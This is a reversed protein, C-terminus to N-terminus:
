ESDRCLLMTCHGYASQPVKGSALDNKRVHRLRLWLLRICSFDVALNWNRRRPDQIARVERIFNINKRKVKLKRWASNRMELLVQMGNIRCTNMDPEITHCFCERVLNTLAKRTDSVIITSGGLIALAIRHRTKFGSTMSRSMCIMPHCAARRSIKTLGEYIGRIGQLTKKKWRSRCVKEWLIEEVKLLKEGRDAKYQM